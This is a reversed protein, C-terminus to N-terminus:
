GDDDLAAANVDLGSGKCALGVDLKPPPPATTAKLTGPPLPPLETTAGGDIGLEIFM